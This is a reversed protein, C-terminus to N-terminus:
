LVFAQKRPHDPAIYGSLRTGYGLGAGGGSKLPHGLIQLQSRTPGSMLSPKRSEIM